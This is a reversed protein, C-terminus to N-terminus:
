IVQRRGQISCFYNGTSVLCARLVFINSLCTFGVPTARASANEWVHCLNAHSSITFSEPDKAYRQIWNILENTQKENLAAKLTLEAFEFDLRTQFPKWPEADPVPSELDSVEPGYEGFHQVLVPRGSSPHYETKIDDVLLEYNELPANPVSPETTPSAPPSHPPM